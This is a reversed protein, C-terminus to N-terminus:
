MREKGKKKPKYVVSVEWHSFPSINEINNIFKKKIYHSDDLVRDEGM